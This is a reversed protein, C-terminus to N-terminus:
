GSGDSGYSRPPKGAQWGPDSPTDLGSRRYPRMYWAACAVMGANDTCLGAQPIVLATRTERSLRAFAARLASNAAVGGGLVLTRARTTALAERTRRTLAAIVADQFGAALATRGHRGEVAQAVATKLGSFSFDLSGDKMRAVPLRVSRRSRAAAREVAPGGPYGLRLLKAVKDYAEGAADDRTRGLISFSGHRKMLILETHGGSAVLALLPPQLSPKKLFAAYIHAVTHNVPLFPKRFLWAFTKAATLGVLLSGPLGPGATAAVLGVEDPKLGAKKLAEAIVETIFRIHSRSAIEPVVGGFPRHEATQTAVVSSRLVPHRTGSVVAAATEDCSSEVALINM